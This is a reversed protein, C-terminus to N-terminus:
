NVPLPSIKEKITINKKGLEKMFWEYDDGQVCEEPARIGKHTIRGSAVLKAGIAAPFATVRAMATFDQDPEEWMFYEVKHPHKDKRGSVTVYMICVDGDGARPKLLPNITQLLFEKPAIRAGRIELPTEDLLGCELLTRVGRYHGPWRVTKEAFNQLGAHTHVFSPMGPTVACELQEDVGLENFQFTEEDALAAVEVKQGAKIVQTNISYERLVHELSWTTMYGLPHGSRATPNPIGGVRAVVTEAQDLLGIGRGATINSLGPAFGMGDLILVDNRIAAEHLREGYDEYSSCGQPLVLGETQYTDPRRHYEELIDVLNVGCDIATEMVQYSVKRNPLAVVAVDYQRLIKALAARDGIDIPHARLKGQTDERLVGDLAEAKLDLLGITETDPDGRFWAVVARGMKGAAGVVLVKM